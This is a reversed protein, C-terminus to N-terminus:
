RTPHPSATRAAVISSALVLDERRDVDIACEPWPMPVARITAGLARSARELASDLDLRGLAFLLLPWAGFRRVLRWPRKRFREAGAWFRAVRPARPTRLLFLNAGCVGAAGLRILTRRSSPYRERLLDGAVTGVALDADTALAERTFHDIMPAVLLPHDATTVLLPDRSPSAELHRVVSLSPSRDSPELEVRTSRLLTRLAPEDQLAKPDEVSVAIRGGVSASGLLAEVVRVLMPVGNLRILAKHREGLSRALPDGGPRQGALVLADLTPPAPGARLESGDMSTLM